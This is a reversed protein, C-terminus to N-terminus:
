CLREVLGRSGNKTERYVRLMLARCAELAMRLRERYVRLMLAMRLRERYM